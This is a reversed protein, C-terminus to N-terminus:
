FAHLNDILLQSFADFDARGFRLETNGLVNSNPAANPRQRLRVVYVLAVQTDDRLLGACRWESPEAPLAAAELQQRALKHLPEDLFVPPEGTAPLAVRKGLSGAGDLGTLWTYNHHVAAYATLPLCLSDPQELALVPIAGHLRELEERPLGIFPEPSVHQLYEERQVALFSPM